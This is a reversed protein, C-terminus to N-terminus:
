SNGMYEDDDPNGKSGSPKAKTFDDEMQAMAASFDAVTLGLRRFPRRQAKPIRDYIDAPVSFAMGQTVIAHALTGEIEDNSTGELEDLSALLARMPASVPFGEDIAAHIKGEHKKLDRVANIAYVDARGAHALYTGVNATSDSLHLKTQEFPHTPDDSLHDLGSFNLAVRNLDLAQRGAAHMSRRASYEGMTGVLSREGWERLEREDGSADTRIRDIGAAQRGETTLYAIMDDYLGPEYATDSGDEIANGDEDQAIGEQEFHEEITMLGGQPKRRRIEASIQEFDGPELTYGMAGMLNGHSLSDALQYLIDTPLNRVDVRQRTVANRLLQAPQTSISFAQVTGVSLGSLSQAGAKLHEPLSPRAPQRQVLAAANLQASFAALRAQRPGAVAHVPEPASGDAQPTACRSVSQQM